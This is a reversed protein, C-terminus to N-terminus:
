RKSINSRCIYFCERLELLYTKVVYNLNQQKSRSFCNRRDTHQTNVHFRTGLDQPENLKKLLREYQAQVIAEVELSLTRLGM